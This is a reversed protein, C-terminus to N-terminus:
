KGALYQDYVEYDTLPRRYVRVDDISGTFPNVNLEEGLYVISGAVSTISGTLAGSYSKAGNLYAVLKTGDYTVAIHNWTNLIIPSSLAIPGNYIPNLGIYLASLNNPVTFVGYQRTSNTTNIKSIITGYSSNLTPYIWGEMSMNTGTIDLSSSSPISVYSGTGTFQYANKFIGSTFSSNTLAGNNANSSSDTTLTGSSEDLRWWGACTQDCNAPQSGQYLQGVELSSLPRNFIRIDDLNTKLCHPDLTRCGFTIPDNPSNFLAVTIAQNLEVKGDIYTVLQTGSYTMAINHWRNDVAVGSGPGYQYTTTGDGIRYIMGSGGATSSYMIQFTSKADPNDWKAAFMNNNSTQPPTKEWFTVTFASLASLKSSSPISAFTNSGNFLLSSGFKGGVWGNTTGDFTFNTLTGQNGNGSLDNVNGDLPYWGVLGNTVAAPQRVLHGGHSSAGGQSKSAVAAAQQTRWAFICSLTAVALISVLIRVSRGNSLQQRPAPLTAVKRIRISDVPM